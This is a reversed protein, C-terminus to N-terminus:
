KFLDTIDQSSKHASREIGALTSKLKNIESILFLGDTEFRDTVIEADNLKAFKELEKKYEWNGDKDVWKNPHHTLCYETLLSFDLFGAYNPKFPVNSIAYQEVYDPGGNGSERFGRQIYITDGELKSPKLFGVSIKRKGAM